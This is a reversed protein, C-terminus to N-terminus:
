IDMKKTARSRVMIPGAIGAIVSWNSERPSTPHYPDAYMSVDQLKIRSYPRTYVKRGVLVTKKDPIM